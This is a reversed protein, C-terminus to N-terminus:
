SPNNIRNQALCLPLLQFPLACCRDFKSTHLSALLIKIRHKPLPPNNRTACCTRSTSCFLVLPFRNPYIFLIANHIFLSREDKTRKHTLSKFPFPNKLFSKENRRNKPCRHRRKREYSSKGVIFLLIAFDRDRLCTSVNYM